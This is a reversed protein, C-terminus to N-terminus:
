QKVVQASLSRVDIEDTTIQMDGSGDTEFYIELIYWYYGPTPQDIQSVFVTEILNLTGTGTLGTYAYKKEVVTADINFLYDPNTPDSNISGVYRNIAVYVNLNQTGVADYSVLQDLQAAIFVRDQGGTVTVRANADTSNYADIISYEIFGGSVYAPLTGTIDNVTRVIVYTTTCEIVGIQNISTGSNRLDSSNYNIPDIGTVTLGNGLSFPPSAAPTTFTYKITRADLQQADNLAIPAVYLESVATQTYPVRFNGTLYRPTYSSFGAFNQGLGAPGSLLYNVADVIDEDDGIDVPYKSTM